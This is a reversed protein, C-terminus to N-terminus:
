EPFDAVDPFTDRTIRGNCDLVTSDEGGTAAVSPVDNKAEIEVAVFTPFGIISGGPYSTKWACSARRSNIAIKHKIERRVSLENAKADFISLRDPSAVDQCLELSFIDSPCKALRKADVAILNKGRGAAIDRTHDSQVLSGAFCYPLSRWQAFVGTIGGRDDNFLIAQSHNNVRIGISHETDIDVVTFQQESKPMLLRPLDIGGNQIVFSVEKDGISPIVSPLIDSAPPAYFQSEGHRVALCRNFFYPEISVEIRRLIILEKDISM